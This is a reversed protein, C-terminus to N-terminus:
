LWLDFHQKGRTAGLMRHNMTATEILSNLQDALGILAILKRTSEPFQQLRFEL